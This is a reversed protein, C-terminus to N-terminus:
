VVSNSLSDLAKKYIDKKFSVIEDLSDWYDIWRWQDFEIEKHTDLRIKSDPCKIQLLFWIQKQGIVPSGKRRFKKPIDYHLWDKTQNLIEVDNKNLGIEENLERYMADTFSENKNIGGQPFQWSNKKFRKAILVQKNENLLVIAVNHRYGQPDIEAEIM